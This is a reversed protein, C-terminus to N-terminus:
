RVQVLALLDGGRLRRVMAEGASGVFKAFENESWFNVHGEYDDTDGDPVTLVLTGAPRCVRTLEALLSEPQRVHELVETCLVVDFSSDEFPLDFADGIVAEAVPLLSALHAVGAKTQDLGVVREPPAIRDMVARLLHGTGCGADLLFRPHLVAVVDAVEDYFERRSKDLYQKLLEPANFVSEYAELTNARSAHM